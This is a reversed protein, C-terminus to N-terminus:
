KNKSFQWLKNLSPIIRFEAHNLYMANYFNYWLRFDPFKAYHSVSRHNRQWPKLGAYHIGWLVDIRPYGGISCYRIDINTWRGSWLMTAMQMEPWLFKDTYKTISPNNLAHRLTSYEETSPALVWLGSNVGMNHPNQKVRDTIEKPIKKGHPCLPEYLTHWSWKQLNKTGNSYCDTKNEMLIGAPTDLQFLSDYSHLPLVDADLLIIKDYDCLRLAQFRTPLIKRDSRGGVATKNFRLEDITIVEDYLVRLAQKAKESVDDTVLCVCDITTQMKLAYALVLAGPLYGDGRMIFTVYAYRM